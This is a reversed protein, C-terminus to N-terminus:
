LDTEKERTVQNDEPKVANAFSAISLMALGAGIALLTRIQM